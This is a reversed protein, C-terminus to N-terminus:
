TRTKIVKAYVVDYTNLMSVRWWRSAVALVRRGDRNPRTREPPRAGVCSPNSAGSASRWRTQRELARECIRVTKDASCLQVVYPGRECTVIRRTASAM